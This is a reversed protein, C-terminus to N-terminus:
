EFAANQDGDRRNEGLGVLIVDDVGELFDQGVLFSVRPTGWGLKAHKAFNPHPNKVKFIRVEWVITM